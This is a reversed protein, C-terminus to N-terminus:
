DLNWNITAQVHVEQHGFVSLPHSGLELEDSISSDPINVGILSNPLSNVWLFITDWNNRWGTLVPDLEPEHTLLSKDLDIVSHWTTMLTHRNKWSCSVDVLDPWLKQHFSKEFDVAVFPVSGVTLIITFNSISRKNVRKSTEDWFLNLNLIVLLSLLKESM